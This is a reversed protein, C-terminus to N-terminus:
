SFPPPLPQYPPPPPLEIPVGDDNLIPASSDHSLHDVFQQLRTQANDMRRRELRSVTMVKIPIDLETNVGHRMVLRIHVSYSVSVDSLHFSPPINRPASFAIVRHYLQRTADYTPTGETSLCVTTKSKTRGENSITEHRKLILVVRRLAMPSATYGNHDQTNSRAMPTTMASMTIEEDEEFIDNVQHSTQQTLPNLGFTVSHPRSGVSAMNPYFSVTSASTPPITANADAHSRFQNRTLPQHVTHRRYASALSKSRRMGTQQQANAQRSATQTAGPLFTASTNEHHATDSWTGETSTVLSLADSPLTSWGPGVCVEAFLTDGPGIVSRPMRVAYAYGLRAAISATSERTVPQHWRPQVNDVWRRLMIDRNASVSFPVPFPLRGRRYYRLEASLVYKIHAQSTEYSSPLTESLPIHFPILLSYTKTEGNFQPKPYDTGGRRSRANWIVQSVDVINHKVGPVLRLEQAYSWFTELMGHFRVTISEPWYVYKDGRETDSTSADPRHHRPHSPRASWIVRIRGCVATPTRGLQGSVMCDGSQAFMDSDQSLGVASLLVESQAGRVNQYLMHGRSAENNAEDDEHDDPDSDDIPEGGISLQRVHVTNQSISIPDSPLAVQSRIAASRRHILRHFLNGYRTRRRPTTANTVPMMIAGSGLGISLYPPVLRADHPEPEIM